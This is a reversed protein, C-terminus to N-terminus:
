WSTLTVTSQLYDLVHGVSLEVESHVEDSMEAFKQSVKVSIGQDYKEQHKDKDFIGWETM